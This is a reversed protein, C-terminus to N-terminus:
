RDRHKDRRRCDALTTRRASIWRLPLEPSVAIMRV